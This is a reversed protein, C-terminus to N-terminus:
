TVNKSTAREKCRDCNIKFEKGDGKVAPGWSAYRGCLATGQPMSSAPVAHIAGKSARATRRRRIVRSIKNRPRHTQAYKRVSPGYLLTLGCATTVTEIAGRTWAHRLTTSPIGFEQSAAAETWYKKANKV